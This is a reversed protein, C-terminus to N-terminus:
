AKNWGGRRHEERHPAIEVENGSDDSLSIEAGASRLMALQREGIRARLTVFAGDYERDLVQGRNEILSVTKSDSLPVRVRFERM